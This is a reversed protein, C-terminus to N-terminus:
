VRVLEVFRRVITMHSRPREVIKKQYDKDVMSNFTYDAGCSKAEQIADDTIDIAIVKHGMAKAYQIGMHGLGGCGIVALWSGAPLQCDAISHYATVGACFLPASSRPDM